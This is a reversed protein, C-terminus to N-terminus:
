TTVGQKIAQLEGLTNLVDAINLSIISAGVASVVVGILLLAWELTNDEDCWM